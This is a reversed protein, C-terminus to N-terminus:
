QGNETKRYGAKIAEAETMFAGTRTHGYWREGPMHYVGTRLNVWVRVSSAREAASAPAHWKHHRKHHVATGSGVAVTALGLTAAIAALITRKGRIRIKM